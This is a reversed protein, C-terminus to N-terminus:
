TGLTPEPWSDTRGQGRCLDRLVGIEAGHHLHEVAIQWVLLSISLRGGYHTPRLDDYTDDPVALAGREFADQARALWAVADTARSPVEITDFSATADGFTFSCYVDTWGALHVLRWAITTPPPPETLPWPNEIVWTGGHPRVSWCTPTPAWLYEDDTLDAVQWRAAVFAHALQRRLLEPGNM